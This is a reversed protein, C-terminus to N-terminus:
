DTSDPSPQDGSSSTDFVRSGHAHVRELYVRLTERDKAPVHPLEVPLSYLSCISYLAHAVSRSILDDLEPPAAGLAHTCSQILEDSIHGVPLADFEFLKETEWGSESPASVVMQVGNSILVPTAFERIARQIKKRATTYDVRIPNYGSEPELEYRVHKGMTPNRVYLTTKSELFDTFPTWAKIVVWLVGQFDSNPSEGQADVHIWTGDVCKIARWGDEDRKLFGVVAPNNALFKPSDLNIGFQARRFLYGNDMLVTRVTGPNESAGSFQDVRIPIGLAHVAKWSPLAM